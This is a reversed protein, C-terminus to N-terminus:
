RLSTEAARLEGSDRGHASRHLGPRTRCRRRHQVSRVPHACGAHQGRGPESGRRKRANAQGSGDSLDVYRVAGSSARIALTATFAASSTVQVSVDGAATLPIINAGFYRPQRAAKVRWTQNGSSDLNALNLSGRSRFFAEQAQQHGIDLYAMRAWYRGVITQVEVPSAVRELVHLPTENNGDHERFMDRLATPGLGSYGDPNNTLYTLFPWAQYYNGSGSSGDVIVQDLRRHDVAGVIALV